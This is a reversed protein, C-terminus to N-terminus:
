FFKNLHGTVYAEIAKAPKLNGLSSNADDDTTFGRGNNAFVANSPYSDRAGLCSGAMIVDMLGDNNLDKFSLADVWCGSQGEFADPLEYVSEGDKFIYFTSGRPVDNADLMEEKSGFTAFCSGKFPENDFPFSQNAIFNKGPLKLGKCNIEADRATKVPTEPTATNVPGAPKTSNAPSNSAATKTNSTNSANDGSSFSCGLALVVLIVVAILGSSIKM